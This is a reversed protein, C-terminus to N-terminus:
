TMEMQAHMCPFKKGGKIKVALPATQVCRSTASLALLMKREILSIERVHVSIMALKSSTQRSCFNAAMSHILKLSCSPPATLKESVVKNMTKGKEPENAM